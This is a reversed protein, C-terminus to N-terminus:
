IAPACRAVFGQQWDHPSPPGHEPRDKRACGDPKSKGSRRSIVEGRDISQGGPSSSPTRGAHSAGSNTRKLMDQLGQQPVDSRAHQSDIRPLNGSPLPPAPQGAETVSVIVLALQGSNL